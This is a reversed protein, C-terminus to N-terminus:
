QTAATRIARDTMTPATAYTAESTAEEVTTACGSPLQCGTPFECMFQNLDMTNVTATM